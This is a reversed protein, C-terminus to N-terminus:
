CIYLINHQILKFTDIVNDYLSFLKSSMIIDLYTYKLNVKKYREFCLLRRMGDHFLCTNRM